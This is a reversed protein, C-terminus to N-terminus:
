ESKGVLKEYSQLLLEEQGCLYVLVAFVKMEVSVHIPQRKRRWAPEPYHSDMWRHISEYESLANEKVAHIFQIPRSQHTNKEALGGSFVYSELLCRIDERPEM